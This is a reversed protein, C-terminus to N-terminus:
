QLRDLALRAIWEMLDNIPVIEGFAVGFSDDDSWRVTAQLQGLGPVLILLRADRAFAEDSRLKAGRQSVDRMEAAITRGEHQVKAPSQVELRPLRPSKGDSLKTPKALIVDIDVRENFQIGTLGQQQWAIRGAIQREDSLEITVAEGPEFSSHVDILMGGPSVNRIVCLGRADSASLKAVRLVTKYRNHSRRELRALDDSECARTKTPVFGGSVVNSIKM